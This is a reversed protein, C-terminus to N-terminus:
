HYIIRGKNKIWRDVSVCEYNQSVLNAKMYQHAQTRILLGIKTFIYGYGSTSDILLNPIEGQHLNKSSLVKYSMPPLHSSWYRLYAPPAQVGM